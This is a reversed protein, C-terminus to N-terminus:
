RLQLRGQRRAVMSGAIALAMIATTIAAGILADTWDFSSGQSAEAVVSGAATKHASIHFVRTSPVTGGSASQTPWPQGARHMSPSPWPQGVPHTSPPDVAVVVPTTSNKEYGPGLDPMASAAAPVALASVVALLVARRAFKFSMTRTM